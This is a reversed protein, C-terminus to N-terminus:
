SQQLEKAKAFCQEADEDRGLKRLSNGKGNYAALNEPDLNIANDCCEISEEYKELSYLSAGKNTWAFTDEPDLLITEDLKM